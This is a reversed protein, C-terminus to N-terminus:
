ESLCMFISPLLVSLTILVLNKPVLMQRQCFVDLNDGIFNGFIYADNSFYRM